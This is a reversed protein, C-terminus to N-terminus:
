SSPGGLLSRLTRAVAEPREDLQRWTFRVVRLGAVQLIADRRRDTEFAATTLHTAAGDTEAVLRQDPWFFDVELGAATANARPRPLGFQAILSLFRIELESRTPEAGRAALDNMANRLRRTGPGTGARDLVADIAKTDLSRQIEAEHCARELRTPTLVVALDLLTRVVTTVPLGDHGRHIDHTHLSATRHVRVGEVSRSQRLTTVDVGTSPPPALEWVAAASRHSVVAAQQGGCALLAAWLRGRPTLRAHGVAYVGRHLRLLGRRRVRLDIAGDGLGCARLQAISVVGHQRAALAAVAVDAHTDLFGESRHDEQRVRRLIGRGRAIAPTQSV